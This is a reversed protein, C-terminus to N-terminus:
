KKLGEVVYLDALTRTYSYAYYKEDPTVLVPAITSVGAPDPPMLEKWLEKRGTAIDLKMVRLPIEGRRRVFLSKGDHAWGAAVDGPELGPIPTPEGGSIPYLYFRRDPGSAVVVKGDPSAADEFLRYGEPSFAKPKPDDLGQLWLRSGHDPEAASLIMTRGDPLWGIADIRLNTPPLAKPEGVGIPYLMVHQAAMGGAIGLALRGDPSLGGATGSGLRVAPSGDAKRVYVSYGAGGGAGTEDFLLLQGDPSLGRPLSWDLWSFDRETAAGPLLASVSKRGKDEIILAQGSKSIDQITLAGTGRALVRVRGGPTVAQLARSVGSSSASFFIEDGDPSWCLGQVSEFSETISRRKGQRDVLMVTGSDDGQVPHDLFGVADGRPSVRPHSIWGATEYLVRGVPYELRVKDGQQRVVALNQGDPAWDAWLIEELFEKPTGGGTMGIRALTGTRNFAFADHRDVSVAMEGSRSVALVESKALGFPRSEPSDLRSVFIEMPRGDWAASYLITQGDPAFRASGISGRRFTLQRFSPPETTTLRRTVLTGGAAGLVLAAAAVWWGIGRRKPPAASVAMAGSASSTVESVHERVSKLDRALDRTSIYRDEPDKALCREVIWRYPAPARPNVRAVPEPEERIIASLTEVGTPKQFARQGTAMEYLISGLAFQDSRYDVPRGSAQEPSMYGVTGLVTGPQTERVVTPVATGDGGGPATFPKALGFDLLKVFGDKSVMVNEPKMDRHVIGASHAKALGDAIQVAVELMKKEGLPGGALMQRLSAGDVLEMAMFTTGDSKGIEHVTVINPHNLASAARAESEFRRLRDEDQAISGPLVKLAVERRLREDRARYVEGM